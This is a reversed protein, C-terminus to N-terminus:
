ITHRIVELPEVEGYGLFRGWYRASARSLGPHLHPRGRVQPEYHSLAAM